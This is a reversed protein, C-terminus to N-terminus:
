AAPLLDWSLTTYAPQISQSLAGECSSLLPQMFDDLPSEGDKALILYDTGVGAVVHGHDALLNALNEVFLARLKDFLPKRDQTVFLKEVGYSIEVLVLGDDPGLGAKRLAAALEEPLHRSPAPAAGGATHGAVLAPPPYAIVERAPPTLEYAFVDSTPAAEGDMHHGCDMCSFGIAVESNWAQCTGCMFVHGPKDYDSGYHRLTQQCKPCVLHSGSRFEHHPAQHACRFHHLLDAEQINPSRCVLCEERVNLRRSGCRNCSHFRDLFRKTLYGRSVLEEAAQQSAHSLGGPYRVCERISADRFPTYSAGSVFLYSLLMESPRHSYAIDPKLQSRNLAFRVVIDAMENWSDPNGINLSADAFPRAAGTIDIVPLLHNGNQGRFRALEPGMAPHTLLICDPHGTPSLDFCVNLAIAQERTPAPFTLAKPAQQFGRDRWLKQAIVSLRGRDTNIETSEVLRMISTPTLPTPLIDQFIENAEHRRRLVMVDDSIAVLKPTAGPSSLSRVVKALTLGDIEPAQDDILALDYSNHKVLGLGALGSEAVDLCHGRSTVTERIVKNAYQDDNVALIRIAM